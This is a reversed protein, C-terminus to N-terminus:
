DLVGTLLKKLDNSKQFLKVNMVFCCCQFFPLSIEGYVRGETASCGGWHDVNGVQTICKKYSSFRCQCMM